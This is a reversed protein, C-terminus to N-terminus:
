WLMLFCALSLLIAFHQLSHFIHGELTQMDQMSAKQIVCSFNIGM